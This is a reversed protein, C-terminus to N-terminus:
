VVLQLRLLVLSHACVETLFGISGAPQMGRLVYREMRHTQEAQDRWARRRILGSSVGLRDPLRSMVMIRLRFEATRGRRRAISQYAESDDCMEIVPSFVFRVLRAM